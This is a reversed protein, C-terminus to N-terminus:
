LQNLEENWVPEKFYNSNKNEDDVRV